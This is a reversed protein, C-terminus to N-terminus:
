CNMNLIKNHNSCIGISKPSLSHFPKFRWFGAIDGVEHALHVRLVCASLNSPDMSEESIGHGCLAWFGTMYSCKLCAWSCSMHKSRNVKVDRFKSTQYEIRNEDSNMCPNGVHFVTTIEPDNEDSFPFLMRCKVILHDGPMTSMLLEVLITLEEDPLICRDGNYKLYLQLNKTM